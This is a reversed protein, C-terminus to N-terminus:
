VTGSASPSATTPLDSSSPATTAAPAQPQPSATLGLVQDVVRAVFKDVKPAPLNFSGRSHRTFLRTLGKTVQEAFGRFVEVTVVVTGPPPCAQPPPTAPPTQTAIVACVQRRPSAPLPSTPAPATRGPGPLDPFEMQSLAQQPLQARLRQQGWVFTGQPAPSSSTRCGSCKTNVARSSVSSDPPAARTGSM